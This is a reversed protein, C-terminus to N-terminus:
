NTKPCTMQILFRKEFDNVEKLNKKSLYVGAIIYFLLPFLWLMKLFYFHHGFSNINIFLGLMLGLIISAITNIHTWYMDMRRTIFEIIEKRDTQRLLIQHNLYLTDHNTISYIGSENNLTIGSDTNHFSTFIKKLYDQEYEPSPKLFEINRSYIKKLIGLTISSIIFGIAPTTILAIAIEALKSDSINVVKKLLIDLDGGTYWIGFLISLFFLWGVSAFRITREKM